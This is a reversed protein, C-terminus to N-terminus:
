GRTLRVRFPTPAPAFCAVEIHLEDGREFIVPDIQGPLYISLRGDDLVKAVATYPAASSIKMDETITTSM